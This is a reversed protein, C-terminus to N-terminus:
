RVRVDFKFKRVSNPRSSSDESPDMYCFELKTKPICLSLPTPRPHFQSFNIRLAKWNALVLISSFNSLTPEKFIHTRSPFHLFTVSSFFFSSLPTSSLLYLLHPFHINTFFHISSFFPPFFNFFSFFDFPWVHTPTIYPYLFIRENLLFIYNFIIISPVIVSIYKM